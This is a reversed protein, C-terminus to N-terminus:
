FFVVEEETTESSFKYVPRLMKATPQWTFCSNNKLSEKAHLIGACTKILLRNRTKIKVLNLQSFVREVSASSHPVSMVCNVVQVVNCFMPENLSNKTLSVKEWFESM